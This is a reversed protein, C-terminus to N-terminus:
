NGFRATIESVLTAGEARYRQEAVTASPTCATYVSAFARYGRNFAATLRARREAEGAAERDLLDQMSQRWSEAAGDKCLTRLYHVSGLIESLRLLRADYPAPKKVEAEPASVAPTEQAQAGGSLGALAALILFTRLCPGTM